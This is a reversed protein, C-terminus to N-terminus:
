RKALTRWAGYGALLLFGGLLPLLVIDLWFVAAGFGFAALGWMLVPTFCCLATIGAGIAGIRFSIQSWM